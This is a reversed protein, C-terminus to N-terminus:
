EAKGEAESNAPNDPLEEASKRAAARTERESPSDFDINGDVIKRGKHIGTAVYEEGGTAEISALRKNEAEAHENLIREAPPTADEPAVPASQVAQAGEAAKEEGSSAVAGEGAPAGSAPEGNTLTQNTVPVNEFQNEPKSQDLNNAANTNPLDESTGSQNALNDINGSSEVAVGTQGTETKTKAM